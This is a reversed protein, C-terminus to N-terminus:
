VQIDNTKDLVWGNELNTLKVTIVTNNSHM